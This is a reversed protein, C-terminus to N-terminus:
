SKRLLAAHGFGIAMAFPHIAAPPDGKSGDPNGLPFSPAVPDVFQARLTPGSMFLAMWRGAPDRWDAAWRSPIRADQLRRPAVRLQKRLMPLFLDPDMDLTWGSHYLRVRRNGTAVWALLAAEYDSRPILTRAPNLFLDLGWTERWHQGFESPDAGFLAPPFDSTSGTLDRDRLVRYLPRSGSSYGSLVVDGIALQDRNAGFAPPPASPEGALPAVAGNLRQPSYSSGLYNERQLFLRVELLMRWLGSQSNFPQWMQRAAVPGTVRPFIPMVVLPPPKDPALSMAVLHSPHFLYKMGLLVYPQVKAEHKEHSDPDVVERGYAAYPYKDRFPYRSPHYLDNDTSPSFFVLTDIKRDQVALAPNPIYAAVLFRPQTPQSQPSGYELWAFGGKAGPSIPGHDAASFRRWGDDEHQSLICSPLSSGYPTIDTLMRIRPTPGLQLGIGGYRQPRGQAQEVFVGREAGSPRGFPPVEGPALRIRGLPVDLVTDGGQSRQQTAPDAWVVGAPGLQLRLEFQHYDAHTIRVEARTWTPEIPLPFPAPATHEFTLRTQSGDSRTGLTDFRTAGTIEVGRADVLHLLTAM